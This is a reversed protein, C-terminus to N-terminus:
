GFNKDQNETFINHNYFLAFPKNQYSGPNKYDTNGTNVKYAKTLLHSELHQFFYSFYSSIKKEMLCGKQIKAQSFNQM